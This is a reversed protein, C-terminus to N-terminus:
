RVRESGVEVEGRMEKGRGGKKRRQQMRGKM